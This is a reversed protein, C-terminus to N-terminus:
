QCVKMAGQAKMWTNTYTKGLAEIPSLGSQQKATNSSAEVQEVDAALEVLVDVFPKLVNPLASLWRGPLWVERCRFGSQLFGIIGNAHDADNHTCVVVSVGHAKTAKRFVDAFGSPNRGGDVLVSWNDHELYFADGQTVPVAIFRSM